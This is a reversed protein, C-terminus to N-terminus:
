DDCHIDAPMAPGSSCAIFKRVDADDISSDAPYIHGPLPRNFCECGEAPAYQGSLCRQLAAIDDSDVDHDGDVDAFPDNCVALFSVSGDVFVVWQGRGGNNAPSNDRLIVEDMDLTGLSRGAVPFEYSILASKPANPVANDITTPMPDSDGPHWFVSASGEYAPYLQALSTPLYDDHGLSYEILARYLAM